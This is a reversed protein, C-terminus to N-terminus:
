LTPFVQHFYVPKMPLSVLRSYVPGGPQLDSQYIHISEVRFTGLDGLTSGEVATQIRRLDKGPLNQGVRGVTLHPSFPRNEAGIGLRTTTTEISGVLETLSPPVQLGIWIVRPQRPSPFAGLGGVSVLFGEHSLVEAKLAEALAELTVPSVDGLFKITLHINPVAVWRILPKPLDKQLPAIALALAKRVEAPIDVAIFSRVM